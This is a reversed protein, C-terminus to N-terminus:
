SLSSLKWLQLIFCSVTGYYKEKFSTLELEHTKKNMKVVYMNDGTSGTSKNKVGNLQGSIHFEFRAQRNSEDLLIKLFYQHRSDMGLSASKICAQSASGLHHWHAAGCILKRCMRIRMLKVRGFRIRLSGVRQSKDGGQAIALLEPGVSIQLENIQWTKLTELKSATRMKKRFCRLKGAEIKLGLKGTKNRQCFRNKILGLEGCVRFYTESALYSQLFFNFLCDVVVLRLHTRIEEMWDVNSKERRNNAQVGIAYKGEVDRGLEGITASATSQFKVSSISSLSRGSFTDVPQLEM